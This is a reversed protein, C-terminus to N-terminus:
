KHARPRLLEPETHEVGTIGALRALGDLGAGPSSAKLWAAHPAWAPATEIVYGAAHLAEAIEEIRRGESLRVFCRGSAIVLAGDGTNRYVAYAGPPPEGERPTDDGNRAHVDIVREYAVGASNFQRPFSSERDPM